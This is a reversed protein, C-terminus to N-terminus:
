CLPPYGASKVTKKNSIVCRDQQQFEAACATTPSPMEFDTLGICQKADSVGILKGYANNAYVFVSNLDKCGWYGPLQQFLSIQEASLFNVM